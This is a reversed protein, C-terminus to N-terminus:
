DSAEKDNEIDESRALEMQARLMQEEKAICHEHYQAAWDKSNGEDDNERKDDKGQAEQETCYAAYQSGWDDDINEETQFNPNIQMVQSVGPYPPMKINYKSALEPPLFRGGVFHKGPFKKACLKPATLSVLVDPKFGTKLIDGQNVDWGSPIDVSVITTGQKQMDMMNQIIQAFPARPEGKFSFGFISDICLDWEGDMPGDSVIIGMDTCQKVLKAYHPERSSKKPYVVMIHSNPEFHKLHRAAVLGDGGNNGPGAIILIRKPKKDEVAITSSTDDDSLVEYVAEAVSLGALEMLQELNYGNQFLHQDLDYADKANLFGTEIPDSSMQCSTTKSSFPVSLTGKSLSPWTLATFIDRKVAICKKSASSCSTFLAFRVLSIM